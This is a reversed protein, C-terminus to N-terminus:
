CEIDPSPLSLLTAHHLMCLYYVLSFFGGGFFFAFLMACVVDRNKFLRPPLTGKDGKWFQIGIFLLMMLGFGIFLGIIRSNNWPYETGGWQLALLLCVVAPILISAGLLDIEKIRTLLGLGNPNNVRDIHLFFFIAVMAAGGIPLNVYFCWRWTVHDTFAGGLLPGAVSAIGWMGGVLGFAAPRKRLPLTYSFIVVAGSFLGATGVGALARGVIFANSNPALACVLSGLEFVFVAALFTYKINFTRYISGYTPQLATTTLLYAAGYWGIDKVSHFEATIAGLAPAIITQDLAVKNSATLM